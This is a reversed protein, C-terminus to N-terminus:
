AADCVCVFLFLPHSDTVWVLRGELQEARNKHGGFRAM